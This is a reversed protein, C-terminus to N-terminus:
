NKKLRKKGLKLLNKQSKRCNLKKWSKWLKKKQKKNKRVKRSQRVKGVNEYKMNEEVKGVIDLKTKSSFIM